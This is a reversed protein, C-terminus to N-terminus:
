SLADSDSDSRDIYTLIAFREKLLTKVLDQSIMAKCWEDVYLLQTDEEIMSSRLEAGQHSHRGKLPSDVGDVRQGM